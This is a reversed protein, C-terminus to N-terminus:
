KGVKEGPTKIMKEKTRLEREVRGGGAGHIHKPLFIPYFTYLKEESCKIRNFVRKEATFSSQNSLSTLLASQLM